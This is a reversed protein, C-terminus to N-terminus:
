SLNNDQYRGVTKKMNQSNTSFYNHFYRAKSEKLENSVCKKCFWSVNDPENELETYESASIDNCKTHVYFNCNDCFIAKHNALINKHCIGCPHKPPNM